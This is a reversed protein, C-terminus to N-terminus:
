SQVRDVLDQEQEPTRTRNGRISKLLEEESAWGETEQGIRSTLTKTVSAPREPGVDDVIVKWVREPHQGAYVQVVRGGMSNGNLVVDRLKLQEILAHLDSAHHEALYEHKPSWDSDGHGRLTMAIVHYDNQLLPAVKDFSHGTRNIGHLMIFPRKGANGWDVYHIKQGESTTIFKDQPAPAPAAPAPTAAQVGRAAVPVVCSGSALAVLVAAVVAISLWSTVVEAFSDATDTEYPRAGDGPLAESPLRGPARRASELRTRRSTFRRTQLVPGLETGEARVHLEPGTTHVARRRTQVGIAPGATCVQLARYAWGRFRSRHAQTAAPRPAWIGRDLAHVSNAPGSMISVLLRGTGPSPSAEGRVAARPKTLEAVAAREAGRPPFVVARPPFMM